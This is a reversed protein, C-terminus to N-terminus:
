TSARVCTEIEDVLQTIDFPKRLFRDARCEGLRREGIPHASMILVPLSATRADDRLRRCASLGDLVPMNVDMVVVDPRERQAIALADRGNPATRVDYGVDVLVTALLDRVADDDDVVLVARRDQWTEM